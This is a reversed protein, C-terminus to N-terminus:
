LKCYVLTSGFSKLDDKAVECCAKYVYWGEGRKGSHKLVLRRLKIKRKLHIKLAKETIKNVAQTNRRDILRQSRRLTPANAIL